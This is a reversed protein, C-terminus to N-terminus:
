RLIPACVKALANCKALVYKQVRFMRDSSVVTGLSGRALIIGDAITLIADLERLGTTRGEMKETLSLLFGAHLVKVRLSKSSPLLSCLWTRHVLRATLQPPAHCTVGYTGSLNEIKAIVHVEGLGIEELFAKAQRVDEADRVFSLSLFDFMGAENVWARMTEKDELTLAPIASCGPMHVHYMNEGSIDIDDLAKCKVLTEQVETVELMLARNDGRILYQAFDIQDGPQLVECMMRNSVQRRM